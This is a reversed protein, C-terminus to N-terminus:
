TITVTCGIRSVTENKCMYLRIHRCEKLFAIGITKVCKKVVAGEGALDRVTM